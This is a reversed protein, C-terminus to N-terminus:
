AAEESGESEQLIITIMNMLMITNSMMMLM